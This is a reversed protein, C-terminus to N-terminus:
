LVVMVGGFVLMGSWMAVMGVRATASKADSAGGITGKGGTTNDAASTNSGPVGPFLHTWNSDILIYDRVLATGERLARIQEPTCTSNLALTYCQVVPSGPDQNKVEFTTLSGNTSYITTETTEVDWNKAAGFAEHIIDGLSGTYNLSTTGNETTTTDFVGTAIDVGFIARRFIQYATEPQYAAVAHGAQYVRSFSFNGYQKVQGGVYSSNIHIDQYGADAFAGAYDYDVAMAVREGGIWNCTYDRDGYIIAVKIGADLLGAIVDTFSGDAADRM